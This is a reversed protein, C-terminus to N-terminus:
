PADYMSCGVCLSVGEYVCLRVCAWVCVCVAVSDVGCVVYRRHQIQTSMPHTCPNMHVSVCQCACVLVRSCVGWCGIRM